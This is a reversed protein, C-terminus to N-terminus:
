ITGHKMQSIEWVSVNKVGADKLSAHCKAQM